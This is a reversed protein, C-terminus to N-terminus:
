GLIAAFLLTLTLGFIMLVFQYTVGLLSAKMITKFWGQAYVRKLALVFYVVIWVTLAIGIAQTYANWGFLGVTFVIWFFVLFTFAHTHLGFVLHEVYFWSPRKEVTAGVASSTARGTPLALGAMVQSASRARVYLFKLLLAFIPLMVFMAAPIRSITGRAFILLAGAFEDWSKAEEMRQISSNRVAWDPLGITLSVPGIDPDVGPVVHTAAKSLDPPNIVSDQPFTALVAREWDFRKQRLDMADQSEALSAAANNARRQARATQVSDYLAPPLSQLSDLIVDLRQKEQEDRVLSEQDRQLRVDIAALREQVTSPAADDSQLIRLREAKGIPDFVSILFFLLLTATLYLRFPRVYRRRKGGIYAITLAGPRAVLLGLTPWLRGDLGLLENFAERVFYGVTQRIPEDKQGCSSCYAGQFDTGCSPCIAPLLAADETISSGGTM